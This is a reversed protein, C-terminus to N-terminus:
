SRLFSQTHQSHYRRGFLGSNQLVHLPVALHLAFAWLLKIVKVRFYPSPIITQNIGSVIRVQYDISTAQGKRLVAPWYQPCPHSACGTQRLSESPVKCYLVLDLNPPVSVLSATTAAAAAAVVIIVKCTQM